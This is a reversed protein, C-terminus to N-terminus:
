KLKRYYIFQHDRLIEPHFLAMLDSLVLDPRVTGSEWYDNGGEQSLRLNNNYVEGKRLVPLAQLREDFDYLQELAEAAGPNIWIDAEVARLYVSELDLPIAEMSTNDSWLYEGGADKILQSAFSRGGAMYWTDKWPLGTLVRPKAPADAVQTTLQSYISDIKRFFSEAQEEVGYFNAFFKIWETKGLPHTELYEGCFVVPIDLDKLKESIARENGEVGYMFLVDPDQAVITEFNLGQDYGVDVISGEEIKKRLEKNYVFHTGSTGVISQDMGLANILAVHTTSLTIVRQVPVKIVPLDMLSDPVQAPDTTLLYTFRINRSNQWPDYVELLTFGPNPYINFGTAYSLRLSQRGTEDGDYDNGRQICCTLLLSGLFLIFLNFKM